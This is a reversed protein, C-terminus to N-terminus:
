ADPPHGAKAPPWTRASKRDVVFAEDTLGGKFLDENLLKLLLAPDAEGFVLKNGKVLIAPDLGQSTIHSKMRGISVHELHGRRQIVYLMRRLRSNDKARAKM